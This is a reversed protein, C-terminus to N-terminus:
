LPLDPSANHTCITKAPDVFVQTSLAPAEDDGAHSVSGDYFAERREVEYRGQLNTVAGRGKRPAPSAASFDVDPNDMARLYTWNPAGANRARTGFLPPM